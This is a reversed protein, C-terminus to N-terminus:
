AEVEEHEIVEYSTYPNYPRGGQAEFKDFCAPHFPRATDREDGGKYHHRVAAFVHPQRLRNIPNSCYFCVWSAPWGSTTM